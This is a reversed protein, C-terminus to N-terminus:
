RRIRTQYEALDVGFARKTNTPYSHANPMGRSGNSPHVSLPQPLDDKFERIFTDVVERFTMYKAFCKLTFERHNENLQM